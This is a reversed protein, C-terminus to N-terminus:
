LVPAGVEGLAAWGQNLMVSKAWFKAGIYGRQGAPDSKDRQSPPIWWTDMAGMGRLAVTGWADEGSVIIPYVDPYTGTTSLLGSASASSSTAADAYPALEPSSVFRFEECSGLEDEHVPKRNGYASVHVFGPLDRIAPNLDTHHFVLFASEIPATNFNASPALIQTNKQAHNALLSRSIKRLFGLTISEDVTQRTTGGSYFANTAARLVGYKEMERILGVREGTQKKMEAPVDDEYLDVIKDTVGYMCIYQTLTCEVDVPTLVDASPTVGETAVHSSAFTQMNSATIMRNQPDVGGSIAGTSAGYPVWRRYVVTDGVNKPIQRQLGILSLVEKAVAHRLIEGKLKNIRGAATTYTQIPM